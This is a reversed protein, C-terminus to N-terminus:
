GIDIREPKEHLLRGDSSVALSHIYFYTSGNGSDDMVPSPASVIKTGGCQGIWDIHRHGHMALLRGNFPYLQRVFWNGNIIKTGVRVSFAKVPKPYEVLHHHLAMIWCADPYQKMVSILERAHITQVLGLANTFSFHTEANSNLLVVGIGDSTDPPLVMPFSDNWVKELRLSLRLGGKDAFKRIADRHPALSDSLTIDHKGTKRDIVKVREGQVADIVSLTRMQRLRKSTSVPLELRAPNARDAINLDHNGPLILTRDAINCTSLYELFEAWEASRGTDTIDGTIIVLDLRKQSDIVELRNLVEMAKENGQPGSRGTEIRFEYRGGVFHLDSLHAIRQKRAEEPLPDFDDTDLTQEMAADAVGWVLSAVALFLGMVVISNAIVPVILRHPVTLDAAEGIWRSSPYAISVVWFAIICMVIGAAAAAISRVQSRRKTSTEETVFLEAIHLIGERCLVYGPQVALSNLSWFSREVLRFMTRGGVWFFVIVILLLLVPLVGMVGSVGKGSIIPYAATVVLPAIGVFMAPIVIMIILAFFLKPLNIEALLSGAISLASRQRTSYADDELDGKGPDILFAM